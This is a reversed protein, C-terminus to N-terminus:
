PESQSFRRLVPAFLTRVRAVTVQCDNGVEFVKGGLATFDDLIAVATDIGLKIADAATTAARSQREIGLGELMVCTTFEQTRHGQLSVSIRGEVLSGDSQFRVRTWGVLTSTELSPECHAPACKRVIPQKQIQRLVNATAFGASSLEEVHSLVYDLVFHRAAAWLLPEQVSGYWELDSSLTGGVVQRDINLSFAISDCTVESQAVLQVGPAPAINGSAKGRADQLLLHTEIPRDSCYKQVLKVADFFSRSPTVESPIVVGWFWSLQVNELNSPDGVALVRFTITGWSNAEPPGHLHADPM